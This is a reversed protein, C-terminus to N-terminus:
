FLVQLLRIRRIYYYKRQAFCIFPENTLPDLRRGRVASDHTRNGHKTKAKKAQGPVATLPCFATKDM